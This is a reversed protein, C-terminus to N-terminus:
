RKLRGVPLSALIVVPKTAGIKIIVVKGIRSREVLSIRVLRGFLREHARVQKVVAKVIVALTLALAHRRRHLLCFHQSGGHHCVALRFEHRRAHIGRGGVRLGGRLM